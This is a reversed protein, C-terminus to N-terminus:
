HLCPVHDRAALVGDLLRALRRISGGRWAAAVAELEVGDLSRAWRADLNRAACARRLLTTALVPLHEPGPVPIRLVRCRDLLPTPIGDLSNATALWVVHSLDVEAQLYPDQWCASSAPELMGLLVDQIRGNHISDAAKELEDLVIGPSAVERASMVSLPMCPGGTHWRRSTGGFSSDSVGGCPYLSGPVGLSELLSSCFATKGAGPPGLFVMPPLRVFEHGVLEGLIADVTDGAHPYSATLKHRVAALDPTRILPLPQGVLGSYAKALRGGEPTETGGISRLVVVQGPEQIDADEQQQEEFERFLPAEDGDSFPFTTLMSKRDLLAGKWARAMGDLSREAADRAYQRPEKPVSTAPLAAYSLWGLAAAQLALRQDESAADAEALAIAEAAVCRAAEKDGLAAAIFVFTVASAAFVPADTRDLAALERCDKAAALFLGPAQLFSAQRLTDALRAHDFGRDVHSSLLWEALEAGDGAASGTRFPAGLVMRQFDTGGNLPDEVSRRSFLQKSLAKFRSEVDMPM